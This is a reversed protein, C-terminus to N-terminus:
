QTQTAAVPEEFDAPGYCWARQTQKDKDNDPDVFTDDLGVSQSSVSM